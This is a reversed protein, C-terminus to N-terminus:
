LLFFKHFFSLPDFKLVIIKKNTPIIWNQIEKSNLKKPSWNIERFNQIESRNSRRTKLNQIQSWFNYFILVSNCFEKFILLKFSNWRFLSIAFLIILLRNSKISDAWGFEKYHMVSLSFIHINKLKRRDIFETFIRNVYITTSIFNWCKWVGREGNEQDSPHSTGIHCTLGWM